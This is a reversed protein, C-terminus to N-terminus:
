KKGRKSKRKPKKASKTSSLVLAKVLPDSTPDAINGVRHWYSIAAVHRRIMSPQTGMKLEADLFVAVTAPNAPRSCLGLVDCFEIFHKASTAYLQVTRPNKTENLILFNMYEDELEAYARQCAMAEDRQTKVEHEYWHGHVLLRIQEDNQMQIHIPEEPAAEARPPHVIHDLLGTM